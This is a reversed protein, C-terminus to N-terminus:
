NGIPNIKADQAIDNQLEAGCLVLPEVDREEDQGDQKDQIEDHRLPARASSLFCSALVYTPSSLLCLRFSVLTRLVEQAFTCLFRISHGECAVGNKLTTDLFDGYSFLALKNALM